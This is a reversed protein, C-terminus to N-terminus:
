RDSRNGLPPGTGDPTRGRHPHADNLQIAPLPEFSNGLYGLRFKAYAQIDFMSFLNRKQEPSIPGLQFSQAFWDEDADAPFARAIMLKQLRHLAAQNSVGGLSTSLAGDQAFKIFANICLLLGDEKKELEHIGPHDRCDVEFLSTAAM